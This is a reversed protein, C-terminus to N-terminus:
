ICKFDGGKRGSIIVISIMMGGTTLIVTKAIVPSSTIRKQRKGDNKNQVFAIDNPKQFYNLYM